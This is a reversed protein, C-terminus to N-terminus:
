KELDMPSVDIHGWLIGNIRVATGYPLEESDEGFLLNELSMWEDFDILDINERIAYAVQHIRTANLWDNVYKDEIYRKGNEDYSICTGQNLMYETVEKKSLPYIEYIRNHLEATNLYYKPDSLVETVWPHLKGAEALDNYDDYKSNITNLIEIAMDTIHKTDSLTFTEIAVHHTVNPNSTSYIKIIIDDNDKIVRYELNIQELMWEFTVYTSADRYTNNM